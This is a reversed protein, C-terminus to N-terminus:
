KGICFDSFIKQLIEETTVAGVIEGLSDLAERLEMAAIELPEAELAALAARMARGSSDLASKHRLNTVIVGEGRGGTKMCFNFIGEKLGALGEGTKASVSFAPIGRPLELGAQPLDAKNVVIISHGGRLKDILELDGDRLPMSGDLVGVVLDAEEIARLTRRVGEEEAMDHAQRIGATDMVRLPLGNICIQEELVDRTTGPMETVIARDRRLLANLLSSKGVNPRGAIAAKLGERYFRGEEYTGALSAVEDLAGGIDRKIEGMSAPEIEEDPFDICAELHACASLLRERLGNIRGSLVGRLQELALREAEETRARILDLAAEAQSLDIRGNLFARKTFEGPEALRAGHRMALELVRRMPVMGGHCNIEVVDERTYTRPARMVTLLVEDVRQGGEPDHIFGYLVTHSRAGAPSRGAPSAFLRGAIELAAPGSLRVIGIGAEGAPTCISAITDGETMYYFYGM